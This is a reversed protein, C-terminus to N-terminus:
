CPWSYDVNSRLSMEIGETENYKKWYLQTTETTNKRKALIVKELIM